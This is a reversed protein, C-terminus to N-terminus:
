KSKVQTEGDHLLIYALVAAVVIIIVSVYTLSRMGNYFAHAVVNQLDSLNPLKDAAKSFIMSHGSFPGGDILAEKFGHTGQGTFHGNLYKTYDNTQALGLIVVGFSIGLQMFVNILGSVMGVEEQAAGALGASNLLPNVLGNSVGLLILPLILQDYSLKTTMANAFIIFGVAGILLGGAILKKTSYKNGLYGTVPGLILSWMTMPVQRLGTEFASYGMFDQMLSTLFINNAYIAAGLTFAVIVAGVFNKNKFLTLNMMPKKVKSEVFIFIALLVVALILWGAVKPNTWAMQPDNEKQILGYVAAFISTASFLMGLFDIKQGEGYSPTEKTTIYVLIAAFIGIPINVYFISPWGFTESLIGGILPGSLTSLGMVSGLIGLAVGREAGEFSSAVLALSLTMLGAGGFAQVVRGIDLVLLNPALGNVASSIVFVVMSILFMKKRGYMDGLKALVLIVVAYSITYASIVWQVDNFTTGFSQAMIPMAVNVINVDLLSM